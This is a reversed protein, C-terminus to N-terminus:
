LESILKLIVERTKGLRKELRGLLELQQQEVALLDDGRLKSFKEKLRAKTVNWDEMKTTNPYLPAVDSAPVTVDSFYKTVSKV